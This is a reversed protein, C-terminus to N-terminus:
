NGANRERYIKAPELNLAKLITPGIPRWNMVESLHQDSIGLQFALAKQSGLDRAKKRLLELVEERTLDAM